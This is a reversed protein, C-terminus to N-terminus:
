KLEVPEPTLSSRYGWIGSKRYKAIMVRVVTIVVTSYQSVKGLSALYHSRENQRGNQLCSLEDDAHALTMKYFHNVKPPSGTWSVSERDSGNRVMTSIPSEVCAQTPAYQGWGTDAGVTYGAATADHPTPVCRIVLKLAKM